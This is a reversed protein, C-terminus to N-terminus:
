PKGKDKRIVSRGTSEAKIKGKTPFCEMFDKLEFGAEVNPVQGPFAADPIVFDVAFLVDDTGMSRPMKEFMRIEGDKDALFWMGKKM